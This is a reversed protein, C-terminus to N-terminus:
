NIFIKTPFANKGASDGIIAMKRVQFPRDQFALMSILLLIMFHAIKRLIVSNKWIGGLFPKKPLNKDRLVIRTAFPTQDSFILGRM